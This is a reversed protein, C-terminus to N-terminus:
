DMGTGVFSSDSMCRSGTRTIRPFRLFFMSSYSRGRLCFSHNLMASKLGWVYWFYGVRQPGAHYGLQKVWVCAHQGFTPCVPWWSRCIEWARLAFVSVHLILGRQSCRKTLGEFPAIGMEMAIITVTLSIVRWTSRIMHYVWYHVVVVSIPPTLEGFNPIPYPLHIVWMDGM